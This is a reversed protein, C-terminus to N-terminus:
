EYKQRGRYSIFLKKRNYELLHLLMVLMLSMYNKDEIFLVKILGRDEIFEIIFM